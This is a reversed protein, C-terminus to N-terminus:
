LEFLLDGVVLGVKPFLLKRLSNFDLKKFFSILNDSLSWFSDKLFSLGFGGTKFFISFLGSAKFFMM